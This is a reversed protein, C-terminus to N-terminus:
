GGDALRDALTGVATAFFQSRNWKMIVRFNDYALFADEGDGPKIVSAQLDRAPLPSGDIKRVGQANWEALSKKVQLTAQDNPFGPPLSVPRGWTQEENWGSKSLYNAISGFVDPLTTWIDRRGDGDYDVAFNLFSSPMFQSQGMAGAWSGTMNGAAIHGQDIIRLANLLETRFFASRRGDYALTALAAIVPFGGTLRGFDSEIGWLAVIFRPQVGFQKGVKDLLARNEDLLRKGKEVRADNVVRALYDRFTLTFEPQKRDLELVRDIPQVGTLASDLTRASIGKAQAEQRLDNLWADFSQPNADATRPVGGLAALALPAALRFLARRTWTLGPCPLTATM